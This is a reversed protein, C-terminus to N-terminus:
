YIQCKKVSKILEEGNVIINKFSFNDELHQPVSKAPLSLSTRSISAIKLESKKHKKYQM